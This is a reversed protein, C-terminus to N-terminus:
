GDIRHRGEESESRLKELYRKALERMFPEEANRALEEWMRVSMEKHGAKSYVFAAFRTAIPHSNPLRSALHFYRAAMDYDRRNVYYLFGMEFPLRWSTPNHWMGRKLLDMARPFAELDESLVLAGFVYAFSFRPDLETVLDILGEFYALDHEGLGYEGYYQVASFWVLDAVLQKYGLSLEELFKGTPLYLSEHLYARYRYDQVRWTSWVLGVVLIVSLIVKRKM